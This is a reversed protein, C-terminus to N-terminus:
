RKRLRTQVIAVVRFKKEEEFRIKDDDHGMMFPGLFSCPNCFSADKALSVLRFAIAQTGTSLADLPLPGAGAGVRRM